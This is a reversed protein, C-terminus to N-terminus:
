LLRCLYEAVCNAAATFAEEHHCRRDSRASSPPCATCDACCINPTSTQEILVCQLAICGCGRLSKNCREKPVISPHTADSRPYWRRLSPVCPGDRKVHIPIGHRM